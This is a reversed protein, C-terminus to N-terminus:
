GREAWAGRCREPSPLLLRRVPALEGDDGPIELEVRGADLHHLVVEHLDGHAAVVDRVAERHVFVADALADRGASRRGELEARIARPGELEIARQRALRAMLHHVALEDNFRFLSGGSQCPAQSRAFVGHGRGIAAARDGFAVVRKWLVWDAVA